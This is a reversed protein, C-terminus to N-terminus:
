DPLPMSWHAFITRSHASSSLAALRGAIYSLRFNVVQPNWEPNGNQFRQLATQAQVYKGVAKAPATGSLTDAEQILNFIRFYQDDLGQARLGASTAALYQFTQDGVSLVLGSPEGGSAVTFTWVPYAVVAGANNLSAGLTGTTPSDAYWYPQRRFSLVTPIFPRKFVPWEDVAEVGNGMCILHKGTVGYVSLNRWGLAPDCAEAIQAVYGLVGTHSPNYPNTPDTVSGAVQFGLETPRDDWSDLYERGPVDVQYLDMGPVSRDLQLTSFGLASLDTSNFVINSM